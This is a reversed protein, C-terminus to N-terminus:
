QAIETEEPKGKEPKETSSTARTEKEPPKSQTKLCKARNWSNDNRKNIKNAEAIMEKMQQQARLNQLEFKLLEHEIEFNELLKM